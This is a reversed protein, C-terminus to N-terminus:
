AFISAVEHFAEKAQSNVDFLLPSGWSRWSREDDIGWFSVREIHSSYETYLKFLTAYMETLNKSQEATLPAAPEKNSGHTFDMETVSIKAGTKSFSEITARIKEIDIFEHNYHGQMGIGEILLRGDYEPHNRWMENIENVMQPIATCKHHFEENYENYYLIAKPDYKRTFYYADFIYDSGHEGAGAGNAYALYWHGVALPNDTERRIYDRWNGTYEEEYGSDIFAENIVDWSYIKGSYRSVYTKIFEEMNAKAEARTLPSEDASRNLWPASQGHWVLTHGIMTIKNKEAWEVIRDAESFDYVGPASTIYVPKMVNEATVANYHHRYMQEFEPVDLDGPSAINGLMFHKEFMGCLSPLTLDWKKM